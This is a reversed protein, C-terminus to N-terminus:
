IKESIIFMASQGPITWVSNQIMPLIGDGGYSPDDSYWVRKWKTNLPPALLPESMSRLQLQKGFNILLLRDEHTKCFFRIVFCENGLVAGDIKERMNIKYAPDNKRISILDFHLKVTEAHSQRENDDLKSKLFGDPDCPKPVFPGNLDSISKFQSLFVARGKAVHENREEGHQSFFYFPSSAGFEQGQFLMPIQPFLILAATMSRYVGTATQWHIRKGRFTNAIQDHNQLYNVFRYPPIDLAPKGRCQNQWSFFTGQFLFGYKALSVFEQASATYDSFYAESHGTLAVTASRHFDENWSADVKYKRIIISDQTENEAIVICNRDKASDHATTVMESIIHTPSSDFIQQAADIRLGDFHFEEIWYRVNDLFFQRVPQCNDGDFNIARGWENTYKSTFYDSSFSNLYQSEPGLHSYVVDLVVAIKYKHAQDIFYKCDNYIGYLHYPAFLNVSEYGWGFNGSFESIPMLEIANIGMDTLTSLKEAAAKWTGEKTFTGIHMEYLITNQIEIGTWDSDNWPYSQADVLQSLGQPGSPQFRSYPDPLLTEGNDIVIGYFMGPQAWPITTSFFGNEESSLRVSVPPISRQLDHIEVNIRHHGPAWVSLQYGESLQCPGAQYSQHRRNM